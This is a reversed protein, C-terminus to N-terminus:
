GKLETAVNIPHSSIATCQVDIRITDGSISSTALDIRAVRDDELVAKEVFSKALLANVAIAPNGVFRPALCGYEQHFLLEGPDTRVRIGLAQNLNDRGIAQAFDGSGDAILEGRISLGVDRQLVDEASTYTPAADQTGSPILLTDGYAAIREGRLAGVYPPSLRNLDAIKTWLAADGLLRAAFYQLTEGYHLQARTVYADSM